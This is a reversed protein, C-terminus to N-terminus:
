RLYPNSMLEAAMTTSPGHGPLITTSPEIDRRLRALTGRLAEADGGALDTRGASGQFLTDGVFAVGEGVLAIGGPTHGPCELVEFSLSGVSVVDGQRLIRDPVPADAEYGFDHSSNEVASQARDADAASIAFPAGTAEQLAKVGGVHDGHGHTAVILTVKTDSLAEAIQRGRGGPDIVLCEGDSVVCYCNTELPGVVFQRIEARELDSAGGSADDESAEEWMAEGEYEPNESEGM